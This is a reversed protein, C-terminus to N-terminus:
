RQGKQATAIWDHLWALKANAVDLAHALDAILEGTERDSLCPKGDCVAEGVPVDPTPVQETREIPPLVLAPRANGCATLPLMLPLVLLLALRKPTNLLRM